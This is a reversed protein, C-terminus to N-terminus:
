TLLGPWELQVAWLLAAVIAGAILDDGMVGAANHRRDAWGVPGLKTIDLVRFLVFAVALGVASARTLTVMALWQGALEDVVIWGPDTTAAGSHEIALLGVVILALLAEPLSALSGHIIIMAGTAVGVLSAITGPAFPVFGIGFLSAVVRSAVQAAPHPITAQDNM